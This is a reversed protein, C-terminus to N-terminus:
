RTRRDMGESRRADVLVVVRKTADDIACVIRLDGVRLRWFGSDTLRVCGPPRPPADLYCGTPPGLRAAARASRPPGLRSGHVAGPLIGRRAPVTPGEASRAPPHRSCRPDGICALRSMRASTAAKWRRAAVESTADAAVSLPVALGQCAAEGTVMSRFAPPTQFFGRRARDEVGGPGVLHGPRELRPLGVHQARPHAAARVEVGARAGRDRDDHLLLLRRGARRYLRRSPRARRAPSSPRRVGPRQPLASRPPGTVLAPPSGRSDDLGRLSSIRPRSRPSSVDPSPLIARGTRRPRSHPTTRSRSDFHPRDAPTAKNTRVLHVQNTQVM